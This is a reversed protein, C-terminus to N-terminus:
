RPLEDLVQSLVEALVLADDRALDAVLIRDHARDLFKQALPRSSQPSFRSPCPKVMLSNASFVASGAYRRSCCFLISFSAASAPSSKKGVTKSIKVYSWIFSIAAYPPKGFRYGCQRKPM